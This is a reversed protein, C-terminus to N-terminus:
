SSFSSADKSSITDVISSAEESYCIREPKPSGVLGSLLLVVEFYDEIKWNGSEM